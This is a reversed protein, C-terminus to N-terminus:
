SQGQMTNASPRAECARADNSQQQGCLYRVHKSLANVAGFPESIIAMMMWDLM